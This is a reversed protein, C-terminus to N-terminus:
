LGLVNKAKSDDGHDLAKLAELIKQMESSAEIRALERNADTRLGRSRPSETGYLRRVREARRFFEDSSGYLGRKRELLMQRLKERNM